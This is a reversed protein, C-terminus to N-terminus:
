PQRARLGAPLLICARPQFCHTCSGPGVLTEPLYAWKCLAARSCCCSSFGSCLALRLRVMCIGGVLSLSATCNICHRMSLFDMDDGSDYGTSHGDRAPTSLEGHQQQQQFAAADSQIAGGPQGFLQVAPGAAGSSWDGGMESLPVFRSPPESAAGCVAVLPFPSQTRTIPASSPVTTSVVHAPAPLPVTQQQSASPGAAHPGLWGMLLRPSEAEDDPLPSGVLGAAGELDSVM